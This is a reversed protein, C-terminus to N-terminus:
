HRKVDRRKIETRIGTVAYKAWMETDGVAAFIPELCIGGILPWCKLGFSSKSGVCRVRMRVQEFSGRIAYLYM